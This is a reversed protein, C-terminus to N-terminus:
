PSLHRVFSGLQQPSWCRNKDVVLWGVLWGVWGVSVSLLTVLDDQVSVCGNMALVFLDYEFRMEDAKCGKVVDILFFTTLATVDTCPPPGLLQQQQRRRLQQQQQQQQEQQPPPGVNPAASTEAAVLLYKGGLLSVCFERSLQQQPAAVLPIRWLPGRFFSFPHPKVIRTPNPLRTSCLPWPLQSILSALCSSWVPRM